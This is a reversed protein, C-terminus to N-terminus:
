WCFDGIVVPDFNKEWEENWNKTPLSEIRYELQHRRIIEAILKEDCLSDPVFAKLIRAEEEVSDVGISILEAILIERQEENEVPISVQLYDSMYFAGGPRPQNTSLNLPENTSQNM